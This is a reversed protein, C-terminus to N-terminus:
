LFRKSVWKQDTHGNNKNERYIGEMEIDERSEDEKETDAIDTSMKKLQYTSLSFYTHSEPQIIM